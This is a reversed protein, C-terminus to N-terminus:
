AGSCKPLTRSTVVAVALLARCTTGWLASVAEETSHVSKAEAAVFNQWNGPCCSKNCRGGVTRSPPRSM